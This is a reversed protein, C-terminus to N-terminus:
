FHRYCQENNEIKNLNNFKLFLDEYTLTYVFFPRHLKITLNNLHFQGEGENGRHQKDSYDPLYYVENSRVKYIDIRNSYFLGYFLIDFENPKVQQINSDFAVKDIQDSSIIENSFDHANLCSEILNERTIPEKHKKSAKSFKIEIREKSRPDYKDFKTTNPADDFGYLEQIMLEAVNGFRRTNLSFIGKKFDDVVSM